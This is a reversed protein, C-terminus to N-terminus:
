SAQERDALKRAVMMERGALSYHLRRTMSQYILGFNQLNTLVDLEHFSPSYGEAVYRWIKWMLAQEEESLQEYKVLPENESM